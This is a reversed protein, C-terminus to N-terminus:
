QLSMRESLFVVIDPREPANIKKRVNTKYKHVSFVCNMWIAAIEDTKFGSMLMCCLQLEKENLM